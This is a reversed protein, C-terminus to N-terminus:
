KGISGIFDIFELGDKVTSCGESGPVRPEKHVDFKRYGSEPSPGLFSSTGVGFSKHTGRNRTDQWKQRGLGVM